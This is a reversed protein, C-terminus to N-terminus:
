ISLKGGNSMLPKGYLFKVDRFFRMLPRFQAIVFGKGQTRPCVRKKFNTFTKLVSIQLVKSREM